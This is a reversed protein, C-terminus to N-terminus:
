VVGALLRQFENDLLALPVTSGGTSDCDGSSLFKGGTNDSSMYYHHREALAKRMNKRNKSRYGLEKFYNHKAEFRLTQLHLLPGFQKIMSPYHLTYHFKPKVTVDPVCTRYCEHFENIVDAMSLLHGPDLALACVCFLMDRLLLFSEWKRDNLPVKHGVLLPLFRAFCWTQAASQHVKFNRLVNNVRLPKNIKDVESIKLSALEENLELSFFGEVVCYKIVNTM